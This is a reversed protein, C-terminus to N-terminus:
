ARLVLTGREAATNVKMGVAQGKDARPVPQHEIQLSVVPQTFEVDGRRFTLFEGIAIPAELELVAVGLKDYYHIVKGVTGAIVNKQVTVDRILKKTVKKAVKRALKKRAMVKKVARVIKSKGAAKKKVPKRMVTKKRTMVKKKPKSRVAAKPTMRTIPFIQSDYRLIKQFHLSRLSKKYSNHSM